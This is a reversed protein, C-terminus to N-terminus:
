SSLFFLLPFNLFNPYYCLFSSFFLFFLYIFLCYCILLSALPLSLISVIFLDTKRMVSDRGGSESNSKCKQMYFLTLLDIYISRSINHPDVHHEPNRKSYSEEPSQLGEIGSGDSFINTNNDNIRPSNIGHLDNEDYNKTIDDIGENVKSEDDNSDNKNKENQLSENALYQLIRKTEIVQLRYKGIELIARRMGELTGDLYETARDLRMSPASLPSTSKSTSLPTNFSSSTSSSGSQSLPSILSLPTLVHTQSQSRFQTDIVATPVMSTGTSSSRNRMMTILVPSSSSRYIIPSLSSSSLSSSKTLTQKTIDSNIGLMGENIVDDCGPFLDGLEFTDTQAGSMDAAFSSVSQSRAFAKQPLSKSLCRRVRVKVVDERWGIVTPLHWLLPPTACEGSAGSANSNKNNPCNGNLNRYGGVTGNVNTVGGNSVNFESDNSGSAKSIDADVGSRIGSSTGKEFQLCVRSDSSLPSALFGTPVKLRSSFWLINWYVAPRHVHLWCPDAVREGIGEMQEELALRLGKPSLHCVSERWILKLEKGCSTSDTKTEYKKNQSSLPLIPSIETSGPVLSRPSILNSSPSPTWEALSTLRTSMPSFTDTSTPMRPSRLEYCSIHLQPSFKTTCNPCCICHAAEIDSGRMDSLSTVPAAGTIKESVTRSHSNM